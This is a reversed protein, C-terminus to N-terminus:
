IRGGIVIDPNQRLMKRPAKGEILKVNAKDCYELDFVNQADCNSVEYVRIKDRLCINYNSVKFSVRDNLVFDQAGNPFYVKLESGVQVFYISKKDFRSNLSLELNNDDFFTIYTDRTVRKLYETLEVLYQYSQLRGDGPKMSTLVNDYRQLKQLRLHLAKCSLMKEFNVDSYLQRESLEANEFFTDLVYYSVDGFVQGSYFSFLVILLYVSKLRGVM